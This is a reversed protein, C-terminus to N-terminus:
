DSLSSYLWDTFDIILLSCKSVLIDSSTISISIFFLLAVPTFSLLPSVILAFFTIKVAPVKKFPFNNVPSSSSSPPLFSDFDDFIRAFQRFDKSRPSALSFVPVGGLISVDEISKEARSTCGPSVGLGHMDKVPEEFMCGSCIFQKIVLVFELVCSNTLDPRSLDGINEPLISPIPGLYQGEISSM